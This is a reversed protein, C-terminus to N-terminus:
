VGLWERAENIDRFSKYRVPSGENGELFAEFMRGLGFGLDRSFVFASKGGRRLDAKKRAEKAVERLQDVSVDGIDAETLDWLILATVKGSYYEAIWNLLDQVKMKGKAKVITLDKTLDYTTEVSGM